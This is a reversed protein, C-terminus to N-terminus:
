GSAIKTMIVLTAIQAVGILGSTYIFRKMLQGIIMGNPEPKRLEFLVAVNAPELIGLAIIALGGVIIYSAVIWDHNMYGSDITHLYRGLQWGGALTCTVVVPLIVAIKPMLRRTLEMRSPISMTGLIPGLVLGLFLDLATWFAGFAVHFFELAWLKNLAIAAILAAFVVAGGYVFGLPVITDPVKAEVITPGHGPPPGPAVESPPAVPAFDVM